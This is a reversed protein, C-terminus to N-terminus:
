TDWLHVTNDWSAHAIFKGNPSVAISSIVHTHSQWEALLSGTSLDFCRISGDGCGAVLQQGNPTRLRM